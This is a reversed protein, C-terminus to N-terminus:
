NLIGVIDRTKVYVDMKKYLPSNSTNLSDGDKDMVSYHKVDSAFDIPRNFM